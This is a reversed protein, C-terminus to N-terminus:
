WNNKVKEIATIGDVSLKETVVPSTLLGKEMCDAIHKAEYMLEYQCPFELIEEKGDIHFIVKGAKWYNPLELWGKTGFIRCTNDLIGRTSNKATFLM